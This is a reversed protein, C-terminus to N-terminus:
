GHGPVIAPFTASIYPSMKPNWKRTGHGFHVGAEM